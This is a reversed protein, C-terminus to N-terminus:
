PQRLRGPDNWLLREEKRWFLLFPNPPVSYSGYANDEPKWVGDQLSEIRWRYVSGKRSIEVLRVTGRLGAQFLSLAEKEGLGYKVWSGLVPIVERGADVLGVAFGNGSNPLVHIASDFREIKLQPFEQRLESELNDILASPSSKKFFNPLLSSFKDNM